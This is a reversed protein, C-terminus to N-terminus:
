SVPVMGATCVPSVGLIPSGDSMSRFTATATVATRTTNPLTASASCECTVPQYSPTWRVVDRTKWSAKPDPAGEV